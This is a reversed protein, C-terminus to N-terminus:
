VLEEADQVDNIYAEAQTAISDLLSDFHRCAQLRVVRSTSLLPVPSGAHLQSDDADNFTVDRVVIQWENDAKAYGLEYGYTRTFENEREDCFTETREDLYYGTWVSVGLNAKSLEANLSKISENLGDSAANLKKGLAHIRSIKQKDPAM